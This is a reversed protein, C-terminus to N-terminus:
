LKWYVLSTRVPSTADPGMKLSWPGYGPRAMTVIVKEGADFTGGLTVSYSYDTTGPLIVL